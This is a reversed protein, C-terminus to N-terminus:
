PLTWSFHLIKLRMNAEKESMVVMKHIYCLIASNYTLARGVYFFRKACDQGINEEVLLLIVTIKLLVKNGLFIPSKEGESPYQLCCLQKRQHSAPM